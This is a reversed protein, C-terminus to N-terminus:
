TDFLVATTRVDEKREGGDYANSRVALETSSSEDSGKIQVRKHKRRIVPGEILHKSPQPLPAIVKTPSGSHSSDGGSEHTQAQVQPKAATKYRMPMCFENSHGPHSMSIVQISSNRSTKSKKKKKAKKSSGVEETPTMPAAEAHTPDPAGAQKDDDNSGPEVADPPGQETHASPLPSILDDPEKTSPLDSEENENSQEVVKAEPSHSPGGAFVGTLSAAASRLWGQSQQVKSFQGSSASVEAVKVEGEREHEYENEPPEPVPEGEEVEVAADEANEAGSVKTLDNSFSLDDSVSLPPTSAGTAKSSGKAAKPKKKPKPKVFLGLSETQAPGKLKPTKKLKAESTPKAESTSKPSAQMTSGTASTIPARDKDKSSTMDDPSVKIDHPTATEQDVRESDHINSEAVSTTDKTGTLSEDVEPLQPSSKTQEQSAAPHNSDSPALEPKQKPTCDATHFSDDVPEDDSQKDVRSHAELDPGANDKTESEVAKGKAAIAPTSEQNKDNTISARADNQTGVFAPHTNQLQSQDEEHSSEGRRTSTLDSKSTNTEEPIPSIGQRSVTRDGEPTDGQYEDAAGLKSAASKKYQNRKKNQKPTSSTSIKPVIDKSESQAGSQKPDGSVLGAPPPGVNRSSSSPTNEAAPWVSRSDPIEIHESADKFRLHTRDWYEKSLEVQFSQEPHWFVEKSRHELCRRAGESNSFTAYWPPTSVNMNLSKARFLGDVTGFQGLFQLLQHELVSDPISFM